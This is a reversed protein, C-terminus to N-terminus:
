FIDCSLISAICTLDTRMILGVFQEFTVTGCYVSCEITNTSLDIVSSNMLYIRLCFLCAEIIYNHNPIRAYLM